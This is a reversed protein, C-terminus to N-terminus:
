PLLSCMQFSLPRKQFKFRVQFPSYNHQRCGTRGPLRSMRNLSITLQKNLFGFLTLLESGEGQSICVAHTSVRHPSGPQKSDRINQSSLRKKRLDLFLGSSKFKVSTQRSVRAPCSSWTQNGPDWPVAGGEAHLRHFFHTEMSSLPCDCHQVM